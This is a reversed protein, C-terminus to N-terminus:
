NLAGHIVDALGQVRAEYSQDARAGGALRIVRGGVLKVLTESINAPYYEEQLILRIGDAKMRQLVHATHAPDPSIGPRPEVTAVQHLGLWAFLYPLSQHYAVVRRREAPLSAFRAQEKAALAQLRAQLAQGRERYSVAGAPDATAFREALLGVVAAGARPDLLFHPNGGPHIDGQSRDITSPVELRAVVSSADVYGSSGKQIAANRAQVLLGDLWSAELELGNVVVLDAAHLSLVFSPRPDVYHPDQTPAVLTTVEVAPGGVETALAGLDALTAVVKLKGLAPSALLALVILTRM